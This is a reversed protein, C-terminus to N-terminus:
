GSHIMLVGAAYSVSSMSKSVVRESQSYDEWQITFHTSTSATTLACLLVLIPYRGCITNKSVRLYERFGEVNQSSIFDMGERDLVEIGLYTKDIPQTFMPQFRFREGFHCFDSSICFFSERDILYPSFIAGFENQSEMSCQGILIPCISISHTKKYKQLLYSIFPCHMELSHEREDDEKSLILASSSSSLNVRETITQLTKQDVQLSTIPTEFQLCSTVALSNPLLLYHSPGLIFIRTINGTTIASELAKFSSGAIKGSYRVGAHPAICGKFQHPTLSLSSNHTSSQLLASLQTSLESPDSSYWKLAHSASRMTM